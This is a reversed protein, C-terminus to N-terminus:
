LFYEPDNEKSLKQKFNNPYWWGRSIFKDYSDNSEFLEAIKYHISDLDDNYEPNDVEIIQYIGLAKVNCRLDGDIFDTRIDEDLQIIDKVKCIM